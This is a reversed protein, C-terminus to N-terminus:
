SEICSEVIEALEKYTQQYAEDARLLEARLLQDTEAMRAIAQRASRAAKVADLYPRLREDDMFM